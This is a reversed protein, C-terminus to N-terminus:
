TNRPERIEERRSGSIKALGGGDFGKWGTAIEPDRVFEVAFEGREGFATGKL